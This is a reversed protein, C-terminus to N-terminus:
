MKSFNKKSMFYSKDTILEKIQIFKSLDNVIIIIQFKRNQFFLFISKTMIQYKLQFTSIFHERSPKYSFFLEVFVVYMCLVMKLFLNIWSTFLVYIICQVALLKLLCEVNEILLYNTSFSMFDTWGVFM